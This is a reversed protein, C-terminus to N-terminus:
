ELSTQPPSHHSSVSDSVAADIPSTLSTIAVCPEPTAPCESFNPEPKTSSLRNRRLFRDRQLPYLSAPHEPSHQLPGIYPLTEKKEKGEKKGRWEDTKHTFFCCCNWSLRRPYHKRDWHWQPKILALSRMSWLEEIGLLLVAVTKRRSQYQLLPSKTLAKSSIESTFSFGKSSPGRSLIEETGQLSSEAEM